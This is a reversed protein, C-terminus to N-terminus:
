LGNVRNRLDNITGYIDGNDSIVLATEDIPIPLQSFGVLFQEIKDKKELLTKEHCYVVVLQAGYHSAIRGRM